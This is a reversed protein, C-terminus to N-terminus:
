INVGLAEIPRETENLDTSPNPVVVIVAFIRQHHGGRLKFAWRLQRNFSCQAGASRLAKGM